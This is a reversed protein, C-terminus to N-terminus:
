QMWCSNSNFKNFYTRKAWNKEISLQLRSSFAKQKHKGTWGAWATGLRHGLLEAMSKLHRRCYDKPTIALHGVLAWVQAWVQVRSGSWPTTFTKDARFNRFIFQTCNSNKKPWNFISFNLCTSLSKWGENVLHCTPLNHWSEDGLICVGSLFLAYTSHSVQSKKCLYTFVTWQKEWNWSYSM